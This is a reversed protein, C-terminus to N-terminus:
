QKRYILQTEKGGLTMIGNDIRFNQKPFCGKNCNTILWPCGIRWVLILCGTVPM